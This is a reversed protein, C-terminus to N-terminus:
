SMGETIKGKIELGIDKAFAQLVEAKEAASINIKVQDQIEVSKKGNSGIGGLKVTDTGGLQGTVVTDLKEATQTAEVKVTDATKVEPASVSGVTDSVVMRETAKRWAACPSAEALDSVREGVVADHAYAAPFVFNSINNLIEKINLNPKNIKPKEVQLSKSVVPLALKYEYQGPLTVESFLFVGALTVSIAKFYINGRCRLM